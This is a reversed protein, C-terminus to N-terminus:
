RSLVISHTNSIESLYVDSNGIRFVIQPMINKFYTKVSICRLNPLLLGEENQRDEKWPILLQRKVDDTSNFQSWAIILDDKEDVSKFVNMVREDTLKKNWVNFERIAGIFGSNANNAVCENSVVALDNGLVVKMKTFSPLSNSSKDYDNIKSGNVYLTLVNSVASYSIVM